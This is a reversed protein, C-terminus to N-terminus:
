LISQQELGSHLLTILREWRGQLYLWGVLAEFGTARKYDSTTQNKAKTHPRANRGRKYVALEEETLEEEILRILESQAAANVVKSSHSHLKDVPANGKEVFYYRIILEYVADGLYALTLPSYSQVEQETIQFVDRFQANLLPLAAEPRVKQEM